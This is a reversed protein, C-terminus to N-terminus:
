ESLPRSKGSITSYIASLWFKKLFKAWQKFSSSATQENQKYKQLKIIDDLFLCKSMPWPYIQIPSNYCKITSWVREYSAKIQEDRSSFIRSQWIDSFYKRLLIKPLVALRHGSLSLNFQSAVKGPSRWIKWLSDILSQINNTKIQAERLILHVQCNRLRSKKM